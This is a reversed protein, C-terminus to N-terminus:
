YATPRIAALVEKEITALRAELVADPQVHGMRLYRLVESRNVVM